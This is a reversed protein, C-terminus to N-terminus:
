EAPPIEFVEDSGPTPCSGPIQQRSNLSQLSASTSSLVGILAELANIRSNVEQMAAALKEAEECSCCPESCPNAITLQADGPELTLCRSPVLTLEGALNPRVGNVSYIPSRAPQVCDCSEDLDSTDIADITVVNVGDVRSVRFRTNQGAVLEVLGSLVHSQQSGDVVRIGSVSRASPRICDAELRGGDLDFDFAGIPTQGGAAPLGGITISGAVDEWGTSPVLSAVAYREGPSLTATAVRSTPANPPAYSLEYTVADSSNIVRSVFFRTLDIDRDWPLYLYIAALHNPQIRYTGDRSIGSATAALPYSRALNHAAWELNRFGDVAM